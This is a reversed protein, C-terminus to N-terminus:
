HYISRAVVYPPSFKGLRANVKDHSIYTWYFLTERNALFPYIPILQLLRRFHTQCELCPISRIFMELWIIFERAQCPRYNLAKKHLERWKKPGWVYKPEM